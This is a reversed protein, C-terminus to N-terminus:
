GARYQAVTIGYGDPDWMSFERAHSLPNDHPTDLLDAGEAEARRYVAEVDPVAFYLLVGEGPIEGRGRALTPHGGVEEHHLYLISDAEQMLMEFESGGHGSRLGLVQQYWASSSEVDSVVLMPTCRMAM